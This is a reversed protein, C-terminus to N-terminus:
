ADEDERRDDRTFVVAVAVALVLIGVALLPGAGSTLHHGAATQTGHLLVPNM